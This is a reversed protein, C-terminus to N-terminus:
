FLVSNLIKCMKLNNVHATFYGELFTGVRVGALLVYWSPGSSFGAQSAAFRVCSEWQYPPESLPVYCLSYQLTVRRRHRLRLACCAVHSVVWTWILSTGLSGFIGAPGARTM